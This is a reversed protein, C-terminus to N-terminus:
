QEKSGLSSNDGRNEGKASCLTLEGLHDGLRIERRRLEKKDAQYDKKEIGGNLSEADRSAQRHGTTDV